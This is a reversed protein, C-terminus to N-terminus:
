CFLLNASTRSVHADSLVIPEKAVGIRGRGLCSDNALDDSGSLESQGEGPDALCEDSLVAYCGPCSSLLYGILIMFALFDINQANVEASTNSM